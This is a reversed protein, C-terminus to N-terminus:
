GHDLDDAGARGPQRRRDRERLAAPAHHHVLCLARDAGTEAGIELPQLVPGRAFVHEVAQAGVAEAGGERM